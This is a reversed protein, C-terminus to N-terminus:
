PAAEANVESLCWGGVPFRGKTQRGHEIADAICTMKEALEGPNITELYGYFSIPGENPIRESLKTKFAKKKQRHFDDDACNMAILADAAIARLAQVLLEKSAIRLTDMWYSYLRVSRCGGPFDPLVTCCIYEWTDGLKNQRTASGVSNAICNSVHILWDALELATGKFAASFKVPVDGPKIETDLIPAGQRARDLDRYYSILDSLWDFLAVRNPAAVAVSFEIKPEPPRATPQIFPPENPASFSSKSNQPM